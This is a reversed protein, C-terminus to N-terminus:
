AKYRIIVLGSGGALSAGYSHAGGSGGGTNATGAQVASNSGYGNGGGGAGGLGALGTSGGRSGGGGGGAYYGNVGTGTPTALVNIQVGVGGNGADYGPSTAPANSGAGGAGGGGGGGSEYTGTNRNNGGAYGQNATGSGGTGVINDSRTGAGGGSGGSGGAVASYRGGAGGGTSTITSFTSNSGQTGALSEGGGGAGGGGITVTYTSGSSLSLASELSGGGGTAGVTSRLGGAGGGGSGGSGGGAIVLYDARTINTTPTFTGSSNFVHYVYTGDFSINGGTAKISNGATRRANRIGYLTITSHEVITQSTNPIFKISTIASTTTILGAYFTLLNNTSNNTEIVSDFSFSKYNGSTYNPFYFEGNNFTSSTASSGAVALYDNTQSTNSYSQVTTGYANLRRNDYISDTNNNVTVFIPGYHLSENDSVRCSWVVKLDTYTQPINTFDISSSGGSGVTVTALKTMTEISM